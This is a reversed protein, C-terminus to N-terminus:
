REGMGGIRGTFVLKLKDYQKELEKLIERSNDSSGDDVVIVEYDDTLARVTNIATIVMTAITGADNYCPFFISLSFKDPKKM